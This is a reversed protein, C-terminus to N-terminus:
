ASTVKFIDGVFVDVNKASYHKLGAAGLNRVRPELRMEAFLQKVAIESLEAAVVRFGRSLLWSIDRTKGCLPVFVRAGKRLSLRTFHKVLLPNPKGEHFAIQNKEWREHWFRPDNM